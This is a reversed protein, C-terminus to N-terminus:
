LPIGVGSDQEAWKWHSAFGLSGCSTHCVSCILGEAWEPPELARTLHSHFDKPGSREPIELVIFDSGHAVVAVGIDACSLLAAAVVDRSVARAIDDVVVDEDLQERFSPASPPVALGERLYASHDSHFSEMKRYHLVRGSPLRVDISESSPLFLCKGVEASHGNDLARRVRKAFARRTGDTPSNTECNSHRSRNGAIWQPIEDKLSLWHCVKLVHQAAPVFCDAAMVALVSDISEAAPIKSVLEDWSPFSSFIFQWHEYTSFASAVLAGFDIGRSSFEGSRNAFYNMHHRVRGSEDVLELARLLCGIPQRAMLLRANLVAEVAPHRQLGVSRLHTRSWELAEPSLKPFRLGWSKLWSLVYADDLLQVATMTGGTADVIYSFQTEAYEKGLSLVARALEVDLGIGCSNIAHHLEVLEPEDHQKLRDYLDAVGLLHDLGTRIQTAWYDALELNSRVDSTQQDNPTTSTQTPRVGILNWLLEDFDVAWGGARALERLEIWRAPAPLGMGRWGTAETSRSNWGCFPRGSTAARRLISPAKRDTVIQVLESQTARQGLGLRPVISGVCDDDLGPLWVVITNDIYALCMFREVAGDLTASRSNTATECVSRTVIHVFVPPAIRSMIGRRNKKFLERLHGPCQDPWKPAPLSFGDSELEVGHASLESILLSVNM